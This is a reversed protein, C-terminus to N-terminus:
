WGLAKRLDELRARFAEDPTEYSGGSDLRRGNIAQIVRCGFKGKVPDLALVYQMQGAFYVLASRGDKSPRLEGGHKALWDPTAVSAAPTATAM